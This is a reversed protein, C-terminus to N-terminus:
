IKYIEMNFKSDTRFGIFDLGSDEIGKEIKNQIREIVEVGDQYDNRWDYPNKYEDMLQLSEGDKSIRFDVGAATFYEYKQAHELSDPDSFIKYDSRKRLERWTNYWFKVIEKREKENENEKLVRKFIRKLRQEFIDTGGGDLKDTFGKLKEFAGHSSIPEKKTDKMVDWTSPKIKMHNKVLYKIEDVDTGEYSEIWDRYEEVYKESKDEHGYATPEGTKPNIGYTDMKGLDHFLATMIMNPDDPYHHYARKIVVLIHKLSNGEPHWKPNQKAEWQKFLLKKLDEPLQDYLDRYSDPFKKKDEDMEFIVRKLTRRLRQESISGEKTIKIENGDLEFNYKGLSVEGDNDKLYKKAPEIFKYFDDGKMFHKDLDVYITNENNREDFMKKYKPRNSDGYNRFINFEFKAMSVLEKEIEEKDIEDDDKKNGFIKSFINENLVRKTIRDLDRNTPKVIKKM